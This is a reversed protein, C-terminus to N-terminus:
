HQFRFCVEEDPNVPSGIEGTVAKSPDDPMGPNDLNGCFNEGEIISPKIDMPTEPEIQDLCLDRGGKSLDRLTGQGNLLITFYFLFGGCLVFSFPLWSKYSKIVLIFSLGFGFESWASVLIKPLFMERLLLLIIVM